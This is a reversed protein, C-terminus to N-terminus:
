KVNYHTENLYKIVKKEEEPFWEVEFHTACNSVWGRLDSMNKVKNKKPDYEKDIGHCDHCEAKIFLAKGDSGFLQSSLVITSFLFLLTKM